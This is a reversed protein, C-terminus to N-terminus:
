LSGFLDEGVEVAKGVEELGGLWVEGPFGVWSWKEDSASLM